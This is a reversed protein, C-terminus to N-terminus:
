QAIVPEASQCFPSSHDVWPGPETIRWSVPTRWAVMVPLSGWNINKAQTVSGAQTGTMMRRQPRDGRGRRSAPRPIEGGGSHTPSQPGTPWGPRVPTRLGPRYQEGISEGGSASTQWQCGWFRAPTRHWRQSRRMQARQM